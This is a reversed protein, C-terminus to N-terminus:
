GLVLWGGCDLSNQGHLTQASSTFDATVIMMGAARRIRLFYEKPLSM